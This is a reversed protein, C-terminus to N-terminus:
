LRPGSESIHSPRQGWATVMVMLVYGLSPTSTLQLFRDADARAAPGARVLQPYVQRICLNFFDQDGGRILPAHVEAGIQELGADQMAQPLRAGFSADAGVAAFLAEFGGMLRQYSSAHDHPHLYRALAAAMAGGFDVDEVLVWGGPRVAAVMRALAQHRHPTHELVARAHALDFCADPLPDALIDHRTVKLNDRGHSDLFRPDLDTALVQGSPGVRGVLWRAVGGAGAGVELCRWGPSVGLRALHYTSADDFLAELARLRHHEQRWAQDFLYTTV